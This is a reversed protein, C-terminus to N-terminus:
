EIMARSQFSNITVQSNQLKGVAAKVNYGM